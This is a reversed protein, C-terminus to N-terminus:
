IHINKININHWQLQETNLKRVINNNKANTRADSFVGGVYLNM